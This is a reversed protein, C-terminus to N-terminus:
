GGERIMTKLEAFEERQEARLRGLEDKIAKQEYEFGLM